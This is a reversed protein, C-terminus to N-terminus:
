RWTGRPGSVGSHKPRAAAGPAGGCRRHKTAIVTSPHKEQCLDCTGASTGSTKNRNRSM